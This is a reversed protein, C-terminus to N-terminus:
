SRRALLTSPPNTYLLTGRRFADMVKNLMVGDSTSFRSLDALAASATKFRPLVYLNYQTLHVVGGRDRLERYRSYPDLLAEASYFDYENVAVALSPRLDGHGDTRERVVM